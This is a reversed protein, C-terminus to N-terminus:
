LIYVNHNNQKKKLYNIIFKQFINELQNINIIPKILVDDTYKKYFDHYLDNATLAVLYPLSKYLKHIELITQKGDMIPM